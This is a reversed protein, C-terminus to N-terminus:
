MGLNERYEKLIDEGDIKLINALADIEFVERGDYVQKIFIATFDYEGDVSKLQEFKGTPLNKFAVTMFTVLPVNRTIGQNTHVQVNSRIQLQRYRFPNMKGMMAPYLSNFKMKGELKDLGMTPLDVKGIMGMAKFEEFIFKIDPLDVSETKGMLNVGDLYANGQNIKHIEIANSM